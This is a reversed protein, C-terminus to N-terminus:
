VDKQYAISRIIIYIVIIKPQYVKQFKNHQM